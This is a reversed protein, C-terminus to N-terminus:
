LKGKPEMLEGRAWLAGGDIEIAAGNVHAGARSSLYIVVGAIDDPVGLRRMPNAQGIADAGGSMALLGHTM